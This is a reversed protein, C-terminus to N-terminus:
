LMGIKKKIKTPRGIDVGAEAAERALQNYYQEVLANAAASALQLGALLLLLLMISAVLVTPLVFGGDKDWGSARNTM